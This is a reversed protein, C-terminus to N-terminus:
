CNGWSSLIASLLGIMDYIASQLEPNHAFCQKLKVFKSHQENM